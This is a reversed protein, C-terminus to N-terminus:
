VTIQRYRWIFNAIVVYCILECFEEMIENDIVSFEAITGGVITLGIVVFEWIFIPAKVIYQWLPQWLKHKIFYWLTFLAFLVRGGTALYGYKFESWRCMDDPTLYKACFYGRFLNTERMIMFLVIFGAFVFFRHQNQARIAIVFAFLLVALQINEVLGDEVFWEPNAWLMAPVVALLLLIELWTCANPRWNIRHWINLIIEATKKM